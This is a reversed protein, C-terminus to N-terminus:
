GNMRRLKLRQAAVKTKLKAMAPSMTAAAAAKRTTGSAKGAIEDVLGEAKAQSASFYVERAMVDRWYASAKGTREAYTGAIDDALKDLVDATSRFDAANGIAAAWPDHVMVTSTPNAIVRDAAMPFVSAISAALADIKVTVKGPYNQIQNYISLGSTVSGGESQLHITVDDGGLDDFARMFDVEDIGDEYPGIVGYVRISGSEANFDFM